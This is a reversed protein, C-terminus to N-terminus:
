LLNKIKEISKRDMELIEGTLGRSKDNFEGRLIKQWILM